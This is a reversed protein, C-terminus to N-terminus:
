IYRHGYKRLSIEMKNMYKLTYTDIGNFLSGCYEKLIWGYLSVQLMQIYVKKYIRDFM